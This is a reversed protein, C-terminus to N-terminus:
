DIIIIYTELKAKSNATIELKGSTIKGLLSEMSSSKKSPLCSLLIAFRTIVNIKTNDFQIIARNMGSIPEAIVKTPVVILGITPKMSGTM